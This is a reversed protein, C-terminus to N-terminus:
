SSCREHTKKVTLVIFLILVVLAMGFWQLAYAYHREPPMSVIPWARVYGNAEHPDLRIIFPYVSKHLFQSILPPDVYEIVARHPETKEFMSGVLWPRLSPYYSSGMLSVCAVPSDVVPLRMRTVDGPVWGRDVLLIAGHAVQLLSLVHYGVQHEYHQNDLLLIMPGFCGQVRIREYQAPLPQNPQWDVPAKREFAQAAVLMMKKEHARQVQWVGLRCFFLIGLLALVGFGFRPTFCVKFRTLSLM